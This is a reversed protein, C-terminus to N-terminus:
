HMSIHTKKLKKIGCFNLNQPEYDKSVEEYLSKNQEFNLSTSDSSLSDLNIQM